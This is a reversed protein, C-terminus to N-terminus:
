LNVKVTIQSMKHKPKQRMDIVLIITPFLFFPYKYRAYIDM